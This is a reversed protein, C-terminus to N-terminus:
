KEIIVGIQEINDYGFSSLINKVMALNDQEIITVMGIGCNFVQYMESLNLCSKKQLWKFISPMKLQTFNIEYTLNEPLIRPINEIIGGGTIHCFAKVLKKTHLELCPKVYIETPILFAENYTKNNDFEAKSDYCINHESMIRRVLSFGNSHIGSSPIALIIDGAKINNNNPLINDREVAGVTFGALDFDGKKYLGPMEASEGGILACNAIKCADAISKIVKGAQMQDLKACAYYDLFFLPEAGQVVLDNVCMAVLDQGIFDCKNADIAIKLKTGVGDTASVLIPDKYNCSKLDFLGGFGGISGIVGSRKTNKIYPKISDVLNNGADINVGADSYSIKNISM